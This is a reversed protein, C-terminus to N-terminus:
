WSRNQNMKSKIELIKNFGDSTLHEKNKIIFAASKFDIFDLNKVGIIPYKEFFPIITNVIDSIKTIQLGVTSELIFM